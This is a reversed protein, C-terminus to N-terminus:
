SLLYLPPVRRGGRALPVFDSTNFAGVGGRPEGPVLLLEDGFPLEAWSTGATADVCKMRERMPFIHTAMVPGVGASM